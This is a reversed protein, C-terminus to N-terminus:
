PQAPTVLRYVRSVNTPFADVVTEFRNTTRSLVNTLRNWLLSSVDDRYNVSYTRNSLANFSIAVQDGTSMIRELRLFSAPDRPDTGSEFELRNSVGDGDADQDADGASTLNFGYTTEWIDPMRDRDTDVLVNVTVTVSTFNLSSAVNTVLVSYSGAHTTRANTVRYTSRGTVSVDNSVVSTSKRWRFTMPTSGTAASILEFTDGVLVTQPQPQLTIIPSFVVTLPASASRSSNPNSVRVSYLGENAQTVQPIVLSPGNAGAIDRGNFQWQYGIPAEGIVVVNFTANSNANGRVMQAQPPDIIVLPITVFLAAGQSLVAGGANSVIVDYNGEAELSVPDLILQANTAGNILNQNHRWQYGLPGPGSAVVALSASQALVAHVDVPQAAIVPLIQIPKGAAAGPTPNGAFWSFPSDAVSGSGRRQLSLGGGDVAGEPWPRHSDYRLREVWYGESATGAVNNVWPATLRLDERGNDLHGGWPGFIQISPPIGYAARFAALRDPQEQPSFDVLLLRTGAPLQSGSPFAYEVAGHLQWATSSSGGVNLNIPQSSINELEIFEVDFGEGKSSRPHYMIESVVVPGVRWAGNIAGNGLRFDQLSAPNAIGFSPHDLPMWRIGDWAEYRGFSVNDPAPAFAAWTARGTLQGQLDAEFLWIEGGRHGDLHWTASGGNWNQEYIVRFAGPALVADDPIRYKFPQHRDDTLYWGGVSASSSSINLLEVAAEFPPRAGGLVENIVVEPLLQFNSEGPSSAGPFAVLAVGGDPLRGSSIGKPAYSFDVADITAGSSSYIRLSGGEASLKFNVHGPAPTEQGDAIWRLWGGADVFSLAPIRFKNTNAASPDDSLILGALDIPRNTSNYVEFWDDGDWPNAMWENLRVVGNSGLDLPLSNAAGPTPSSLLRRLTGATGVSRDILQAGYEFSHVRQGDPNFLHVGGGEGDLSHGTNLVPEVQTSAPRRRDCEIVLFGNGAIVTGTPFYWEGPTVAGLSLSMGSLDFATSNTNALEIWDAIRGQNNTLSANRALIENVIPGAYSALYNEAGPSASSPFQVINTSNEPYKGQSIQNTQGNYRVREVESGTADYLVIAGARPTLAFDVHDPGIGGDAFVQLYGLPSLFSPSALRSVTNSNGLYIGRLPVPNTSLNRLEIWGPLGSPAPVFWENISLQSPEGVTAARNPLGPTPENLIWAGDIAGVTLDPLQLGFALADIRNTSADYLTLSEGKRGLAFGSHIGPTATGVPDCWVVLYGGAAIQTGNPFVFQRPDGGDSLSWGALSVSGPGPNFLEIWDPHTGAHDVASINEAMVENIRVRPPSGAQRPQGPTGHRVRSAAWSAPSNPDGDLDILELSFGGGDASAPWGKNDAYSVSYVTQGARNRLALREGGNNLSGDFRGAVAVGPYRLTFANTDSNSSIVWRAGGPIVTNEAFIFDVGEFSFGGVNVPVDSTNLLEVFEYASSGEPNYHIESIRIPSLLTDIDFTTTTLASWNTTGQLTRAQLLVPRTLVIPNTYLQADASVENSFMVRPDGGNLTYYIVGNTAATQMTLSFGSPVRGGFRNLAPANTSALFKQGQLQATFFRRRQPIWTNLIYNDFGSIVPLLPARMEIFRSTVNSEVLAGNNYFHKHVRDAFLLRFEPSTRMRNFLDAIESSAGLGSDSSVFSDFSPGRSSLFGGEADWVYFRFVGNTTRERASRWNNHPWDWTAAYANVFLYDVFNTLDLRRAVERYGSALSVNTRNVLTRLANWAVSDGGQVASGVTLVDWKEGGGHYAQLFQEEVRETPNYYGKYVGNIYLNVFTGHCAVQGSDSALQRVLEDTLFPNVEDNHGARLVIQDYEKLPSDEFFPQELRGSGYDGRFYLRYSFKSGETYRPRTYDSGQIRIGCDVQFGSNDQPRIFEVSTPREWAIGHKEPNQYGAGIGAIGTPGTLNKSATVISLIPLSRNALSQKFLYTSTEVSSPLRDERFAVARVVTTNTIRLSNTYLRGNSLTPESGDLTFRIFAAPTPTYLNLTFASNYHGRPASFQVDDCVGSITPGSNAAGPTPQSFYQALGNTDRGYSIDNRQVPYGPSFSDALVRPSDPTYLGLFEGRPSLKFNTHLRNTGTPARRDKGSAFVVLYGGPKLVTSPFVWRDPEDPDDSLAWGALNVSQKGRNYIEIWDQPQPDAVTSDEDTLGNENAALFENIVLDGRVAKPDLNITWAGGAFPHPEPDAFDTIGHSARWSLNVQGSPPQPFRFVFRGNDFSELGLAPTGNILLDGAEVGSVSESFRVRLETLSNVTVGAAPFFDAVVPPLTDVLSYGWTASPSTADFGFSPAAVSQINHLAQWTIRVSGYEPQLLNFTYTDDAGSVGIVPLGNVLLDDIDVGSVPESFTVTIQQLQDKVIGPIPQIGTIQPAAAHLLWPGLSM